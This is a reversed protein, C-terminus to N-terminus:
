EVAIWRISPGKTANDFFVTYLYKLKRTHPKKM